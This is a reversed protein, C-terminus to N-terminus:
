NNCYRMHILVLFHRLILESNKDIVRAYAGIKQFSNTISLCLVIYHTKMNRCRRLFDQVEFLKNM